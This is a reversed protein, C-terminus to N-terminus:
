KARTACGIVPWAGMRSVARAADPLNAWLLDAFPQPPYDAYVTVEVGLDHAVDLLAAWRTLADPHAVCMGPMVIRWRPCDRALRRYDSAHAPRDCLDDFRFSAIAEDVDDRPRGGVIWRGAGFGSRSPSVSAERLDRGDDLRIVSFLQEIVDITPEFGPHFLPNPMLEAPARNSTAVVRVGRRDLERLVRDLFVGDAPDHVTFEDLCLVAVGDVLRAVALPLRGTQAMGEHLEEFFEQLHRRRAGIVAAFIDVLLTKGRGPPGYLYVNRGAALVDLAANQEPTLSM